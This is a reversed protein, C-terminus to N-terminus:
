RQLIKQIPFHWTKAMKAVQRPSTVKDLLDKILGKRQSFLRFDGRWGLYGPMGPYMKEIEEATYRDKDPMEDWIKQFRAKKELLAKAIFPMITSYDAQFSETTSKLAELSVKGWTHAEAPKCSTLSGDTVPAGVIQVDYDYGGIGDLLFIQGLTPEPQLTFNKSVGGGLILVGLQKVESKKLGWYHYACSEFVEGHLDLDFKHKIKKRQALAWLKVSNLFVSGDAPAGVFVPIAHKYCTALLGPRLGFKKEQAQYYKGLLNRFEPGTMKRQFEPRRLLTTIFKDQDFLVEEDFGADTVRIIGAKRYEEDRGEIQVEKICDDRFKKLSRHGDHYCIADTVTIYAVWGAEILDNFWTRHQNSVTLPGAVSIILPVGRSIMLDLIMYIRRIYGGGFVTFCDKILEEMNSVESVSKVRLSPGYLGARPDKRDGRKKRTKM